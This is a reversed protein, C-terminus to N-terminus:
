QHSSVCAHWFTRTIHSLCHQPGTSTLVLSASVISQLMGLTPAPLLIDQTFGLISSKDQLWVANVRGYNSSLTTAWVQLGLLSRLCSSSEDLTAQGVTLSKWFVFQSRPIVPNSRPKQITLRSSSSSPNHFLFILVSPGIIPSSCGDTYSLTGLYSTHTPNWFGSADDQFPSPSHSHWAESHCPHDGVLFSAIQLPIHQAPQLKLWSNLISLVQLRSQWVSPQLQLWGSNAQGSPSPQEGHVAPLFVIVICALPVHKGVFVDSFKSSASRIIETM